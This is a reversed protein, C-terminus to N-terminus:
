PKEKRTMPLPEWWSEKVSKIKKGEVLTEEMLSVREWVQGRADLAQTVASYGRQVSWCQVFHPTRDAAEGSYVVQATTFQGVAAKVARLQARAIQLAVKPSTKRRKV